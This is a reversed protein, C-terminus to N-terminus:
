SATKLRGANRSDIPARISDMGQHQYPLTSNVSAHGMTKMVAPLNQSAALSDTGFTHRASYLVIRKDLGAHIRAKQFSKAISKMHGKGKPSPFVWESKTKKRRIMLAEKVRNSMPM